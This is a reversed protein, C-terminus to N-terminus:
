PSRLYKKLSPTDATSVDDVRWGAPTWLLLLKLSDPNGGSYDLRVDATATNDGTKTIVLKGLKLGDPDQCNCIPDGDLKGVDGKPTKRADARILSALEPSFVLTMEKTLFSPGNPRKPDNYEAYLHRVFSEAQAPTQTRAACTVFLLASTALAALPKRM